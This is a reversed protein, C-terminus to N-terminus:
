TTYFVTFFLIMRYFFLAFVVGILGGLTRRLTVFPGDQYATRMAFYIYATFVLILPISMLADSNLLGPTLHVGFVSMLARSIVFAIRLAATFAILMLLFWAYFHLSFVIHQVAPKGTGAYFLALFLALIPVMIIVLSKAQTVTNANFKAAYDSSIRSRTVSDAFPPTLGNLKKMVLPRAFRGHATRYMQVSLPTTFIVNPVVSQALFYFLNVLLFLDLPQLYRRRRGRIYELTLFGPRTILYRVSTIFKADVSTLHHFTSRLFSALSLDRADLRHEGCAACFEGALLAGCNACREVHAQVEEPARTTSV